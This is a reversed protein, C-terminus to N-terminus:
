EIDGVKDGETPALAAEGPIQETDFDVGVDNSPLPGIALWQTPLGKSLSTGSKKAMDAPREAQCTMGATVGRPTRYFEVPPKAEPYLGTWNGRWGVVKRSTGDSKEVAGPEKPGPPPADQALARCAGIGGTGAAVTSVVVAAAVTRVKVWFSM